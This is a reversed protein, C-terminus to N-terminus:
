QFTKSMARGFNRKMDHFINQTPTDRNLQIMNTCKHIWGWRKGGGWSRDRVRRLWYDTRWKQLKFFTIYIFDYVIYGKTIPKKGKAQNGQCGNLNNSIDM